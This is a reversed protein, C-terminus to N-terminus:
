YDSVVSRSYIMPKMDVILFGSYLPGSLVSTITFWAIGPEKIGRKAAQILEKVEEDSIRIHKANRVDFEM